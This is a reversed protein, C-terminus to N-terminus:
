KLILFGTMFSFFNMSLVLVLLRWKNKNIVFVLLLWEVLIIIIELVILNITNAFIINLWLIYNIAPHTILNIFFISLLQSKERYGLFLATSIEIILTLFLALLYSSELM